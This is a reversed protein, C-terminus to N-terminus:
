GGKASEILKRIEPDLEKKKHAVPYRYYIELTLVCLVTTGLRGCHTGIFGKDSDWSGPNAGERQEQLGVLWDRMGGKRKGEADKPGENWDKWEDGGFRFVVQTAYYFFYLDLPKPDRPKATTGAPARDMLGAVGTIM